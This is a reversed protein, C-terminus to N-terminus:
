NTLDLSDEILPEVSTSKEFVEESPNVFSEETHSIIVDDAEAIENEHLLYNLWFPNTFHLAAKQIQADSNHDNAGKLKKALLFQATGFYPYKTVTQEILSPSVEALSTVGFLQQVINKGTENM